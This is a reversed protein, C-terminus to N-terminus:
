STRSAKKSRYRKIERAIDEERLGLKSVWRGGFAFIQEWKSKQELYLRAAERLLESRTRSEEKATKDIQELLDKQFSINVTSVAM